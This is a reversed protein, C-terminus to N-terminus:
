PEVKEAQDAARNAWESALEKRIIQVDPEATIGIRTKNGRISCVRVVVLPCRPDGIIIEEGAIRSLVLM